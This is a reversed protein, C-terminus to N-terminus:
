CAAVFAAILPHLPEGALAGVQPQFLTAIFFPHDPLEVAEVGADRAHAGVVMGARELAPVHDAAVGYGCFHFGDFPQEGCIAALRTGSAPVVTRIEGILSCALAAVIAEGAESEGHAAGPIQAVNRAFEVVVHQFGGCTGLLPQGSERAHRIAAYVADADAYPTGPIVWVGDYRSLDAGSDTAVWEVALGAVAAELERHTVHDLNREGLLAIM